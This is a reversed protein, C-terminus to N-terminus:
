LRKLAESSERRNEVFGIKLKMVWEELFGQGREWNSQPSSSLKWQIGDFLNYGLDSLRLM